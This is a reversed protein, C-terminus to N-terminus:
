TGESGPTAEERERRGQLVVIRTLAFPILVLVIDCYDGGPFAVAPAVLDHTPSSRGPGRLSFGAPEM